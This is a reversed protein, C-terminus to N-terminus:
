HSPRRATEALTQVLRDVDEDNNYVSPSIRMKNRHRIAIHVGADKLREQTEGPERVEFAVIPSENGAPTICPFGLPPLEERLRDTLQAHLRM